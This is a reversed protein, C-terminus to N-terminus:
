FWGVQKDAMEPMKTYFNAVMNSANVVELSVYSAVEFKLAM